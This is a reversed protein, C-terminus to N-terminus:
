WRRHMMASGDTIGIIPNFYIDTDRGAYGVAFPNTGTPLHTWRGPELDQGLASETLALGTVMFALM